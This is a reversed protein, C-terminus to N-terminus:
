DPTIDNVYTMLRRMRHNVGSKGIPPDLMEGLEQLSADPHDLRAQAIQQLSPPLSQMRESEM